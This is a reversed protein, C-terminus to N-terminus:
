VRQPCIGSPHFDGHILILYNHFDFELTLITFFLKTTVPYRVVKSSFMPNDCRSALLGVPEMLLAFARGWHVM